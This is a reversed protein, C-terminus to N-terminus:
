TSSELEDLIALLIDLELERLHGDESLTRTRKARIEALRKALARSSPRAALRRRKSSVM